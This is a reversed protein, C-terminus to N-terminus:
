EKNLCIQVENEQSNTASIQKHLQKLHSRYYLHDGNEIFVTKETAFDQILLELKNKYIVRNDSLYNALEILLKQEKELTSKALKFAKEM